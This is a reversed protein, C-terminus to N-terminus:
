RDVYTRIRDRHGANESRKHLSARHFSKTVELCELSTKNGLFFFGCSKKKKEITKYLYFYIFSNISYLPLFLLGTSLYVEMGIFASDFWLEAYDPECSFRCRLDTRGLDLDCCM